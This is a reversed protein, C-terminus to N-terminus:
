GYVGSCKLFGFEKVGPFSECVSKGVVEDKSIKEIQLAARNINTIKFDMGYDLAEYIVVGSSMNEFIERFRQENERLAEEAQKRQTIDRDIGIILEREGVQILKTSIEIPFVTGNKHLHNTELYTNGAEKLQRLYDNREPPSFPSANLIDISQGIMEDRQYGNMKCATANCDIIPWSTKPDNPDILTIADPSLEFLARFLLESEQRAAEAQKRESVDRVVSIYINGVPREIRAVSVEVPIRGVVPMSM